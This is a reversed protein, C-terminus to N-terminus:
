NWTDAEKASWLVIDRDPSRGRFLGSEFDLNGKKFIINSSGQLVQVEGMLSLKKQPSIWQGSNANIQWHGHKLLIGKLKARIRTRAILLQSSQAWLTLDKGDHNQSTKQVAEKSTIQSAQQSTDQSKKPSVISTQHDVQQQSRSDKKPVPNLAQQSESMHILHHHREVLTQFDRQPGTWHELEFTKVHGTFPWTWVLKINQLLTAQPETSWHAQQFFLRQDKSRLEFLQLSQEGIHIRSAYAKAQNLSISTNGSLILISSDTLPEAATAHPKSHQLSTSSPTTAENQILSRKARDASIVMDQTKGKNGKKKQILTIKKFQSSPNKQAPITNSDTSILLIILAILGVFTM